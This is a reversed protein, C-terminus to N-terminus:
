KSINVFGNKFESELLKEDYNSIQVQKDNIKVETKSEKSDLVEFEIYVLVGDKKLDNDELNLFRLTGNDDAFQYDNLFTGKDYGLYKLAKPDYKFEIVMAMIGPNNKIKVPVKVKEGVKGEVDEISILTNDTNSDNSKFNSKLLFVLGTAILAVAVIVSVTIIIIKKKDM